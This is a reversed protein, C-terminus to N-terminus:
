CYYNYKIQLENQATELVHCAPYANLKAQLIVNDIITFKHLQKMQIQRKDANFVTSLINYCSCACNRIKAM